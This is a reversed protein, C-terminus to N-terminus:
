FVVEQESGDTFVLLARVPRGKAFAQLARRYEGLQLEYQAMPAGDPSGSKYDLVWIEDDFEVWRDIRGLQNAAALFSGENVARLYRTPDFFRQLSPRALIAQASRRIGEEVEPLPLGSLAAELWAHMERGFAMGAESKSKPAAQKQIQEGIRPVQRLSREASTVRAVGEGPQLAAPAVVMSGTRGNEVGMQTLAAALRKWPTVANQTRAPEIGSVILVQEARTIAVYLLNLEEREAALKEAELLEARCPGAEGLRGLLSFHQPARADEPWAMAISYGDGNRPPANADIIWVIPAELGKSGHITMIRVRGRETEGGAAAVLGEDPAEEDSGSLRRLEDVFRTLSPYRGADVNLALELLAELNAHVGPWLASPVAARCRAFWDSEHFIRDILDHAPLYASAALWDRLLGVARQMGAHREAALRQLASWWVNGAGSIALLDEDTLDFAPTRLAHALQLNDAPDALFRLVALLDQAELTELLGGRGPSVFPIGAARLAAEYTALQTKRRTLILIDSYRAPRDRGGKGRVSLHGVMEGIRGALLSAEEARRLDEQEVRPAQLPYRILSAQEVAAEDSSLAILPLVEVRSPWDAREATQPVFGAMQAESFVANVLQVIGEANRFTHANGLRLAGFEREFYEAAATFLKPEARRFRYISQKPDGVLFVTPRAVGMDTYADLWGRLIRWQLPNTDQFEDLLIHKYRADLRAQLWAGSAERALLTDIEAELDSFDMVRRSRKLADLKDLLAQGVQLAHRNFAATYQDQLAGLAAILHASWDEHLALFRAEGGEGLRKLQAGSSKRKRPEQAATLFAPRVAEFGARLMAEDSAQRLDVVAQALANGLAKDGDTNQGLLRAFEELENLRSTTFCDALPNAGEGFTVALWREIGEAGGQESLWVHWEARREVFAKLLKRTSHAGLSEYLWLLSQALPAEPARACDAAVAAWAEDLLSGAADDLTRGALGSDLPAGSLLRAFWGHFTTITIAPMAQLTAEFLGRARPLLAQAEDQALGRDVLMALAQDAPATALTMLLSRLRAEIERAAKRTYTIALIEGPKVGALLLRLLRSSLLWTKGSGACAEVAVSRAPDLALFRDRQRQEASM